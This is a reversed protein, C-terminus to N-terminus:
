DMQENAEELLTIVAQVIALRVAAEKSPHNSWRQESLYPGKISYVEVMDSDIILNVRHHIMLVFCADNSRCWQPYAKGDEYELLSALRKEAESYKNLDTLKIDSKM